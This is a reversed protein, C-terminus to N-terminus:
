APRGRRWYARAFAVAVGVCILWVFLFWLRSNHTGVISGAIRFGAFVVVPTAALGGVVCVAVATRRSRDALVRAATCILVTVVFGAAMLTWDSIAM